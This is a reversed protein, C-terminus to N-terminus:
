LTWLSTLWKGMQIIEVSDPLRIHDIRFNFEPGFTLKRLGDPLPPNSYVFHHDGLYWIELEEISHWIQLNRDRLVAGGDCWIKVVDSLERPTVEPEQM